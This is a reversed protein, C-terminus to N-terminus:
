QSVFLNLYIKSLKAKHIGIAKDRLEKVAELQDQKMLRNMEPTRKSRLYAALQGYNEIGEPLENNNM